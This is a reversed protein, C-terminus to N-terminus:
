EHVSKEGKEEIVHKRIIDRLYESITRFGHKRMKEEMTKKWSEPVFFKIEEWKEGHKRSM